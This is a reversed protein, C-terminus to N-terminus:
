ATNNSEIANASIGYVPDLGQATTPNMTFLGFDTTGIANANVDVSSLNGSTFTGDGSDADTLTMKVTVKVATGYTANDVKAEGKLTMSTYTGNAQTLLFITTYGTGLDDVGNAFGDTSLTEGSGSRTSVQAGIDFNGMATILEDVSSDKSTASSGGNGTRTLKIRIKGGANFFYRLNNGNAFTVSHEVTHSGTYRTSSAASRLESSEGLATASVSGGAVAASLATLDTAVAAKIKVTDGTTVQTRATVSINTHNAINDMATLLANWQAAKIKSDAGGDATVTTLETQGLGYVTAGVGMTHNIGIVGSTNNLFENYENDLITEGALYGM